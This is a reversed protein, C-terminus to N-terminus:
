LLKRFTSLEDFALAADSAKAELELFEMKQEESFPYNSAAFVEVARFADSREKLLRQFEEALHNSM